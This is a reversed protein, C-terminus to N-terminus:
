PAEVQSFHVSFGHAFALAAGKKLNPAVSTRYVTGQVHDPMLFMVVDANQVADGVSHVAFGDREATARSRSGEHLGVVVRYGSDKLNQAHAHGQSGYGLIAVTKDRLAGLNADKEYYVTAM